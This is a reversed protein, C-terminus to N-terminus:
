MSSITMSTNQRCCVGASKDDHNLKDLAEHLGAQIAKVDMTAM